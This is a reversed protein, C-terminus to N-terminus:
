CDISNVLQNAVSFISAIMAPVDTNSRNIRSRDHRLGHVARDAEGGSKATEPTPM